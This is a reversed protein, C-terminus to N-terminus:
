SSEKARSGARAAFLNKDHWAIRLPRSRGLGKLIQRHGKQGRGMLWLAARRPSTRAASRPLPAAPMSPVARDDGPRDIPGLAFGLVQAPQVSIAATPAL